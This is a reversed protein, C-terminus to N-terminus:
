HRSRPKRRPRPLAQRVTRRLELLASPDDLRNFGKSLIAQLERRCASEVAEGDPASAVSALAQELRPRGSELEKWERTLLTRGCRGLTEPNDSAIRTCMAVQILRLREMSAPSLGKPPLYSAVEPAFRLFFARIEQYAPGLGNMVGEPAIRDIQEGVYESVVADVLRRAGDVGALHSFRHFSRRSWAELRLRLEDPPDSFLNRAAM